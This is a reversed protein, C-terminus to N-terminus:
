LGMFPLNLLEPATKRKYCDVQTFLSFPLRHLQPACVFLHSVSTNRIHYLSWQLLKLSDTILMSCKKCRFLGVKDFHQVM